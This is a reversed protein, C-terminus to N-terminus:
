GQVPCFAPLAKYVALEPGDPPIFAGAAVTQAATITTNALKLSTLSECTPAVPAAILM